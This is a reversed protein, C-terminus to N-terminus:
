FFINGFLNKNSLPPKIGTLSFQDALSKNKSLDRNKVAVRPANQYFCQNGKIQM